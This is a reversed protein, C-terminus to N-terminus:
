AGKMDLLIGAMALGIQTLVLGILVTEIQALSANMPPRTGRAAAVVAIVTRVVEHLMLAWGALWLAGAALGALSWLLLGAPTM